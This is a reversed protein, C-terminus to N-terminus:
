AIKIYELNKKFNTFLMKKILSYDPTKLEPDNGIVEFAASKAKRLIEKDEAIDGYKFQPLGSQETGFINGPGRLKLDIEALKFGDNYKEMSKLRIFAKYREKEAPSLYDTEINKLKVKKLYEDKAVLIAYGQRKGRGVRGRLQHLQSLGFRQADNIVIINAAPVDIGVEIVTTSILIDFEKRSFNIMVEEKERWNMKGHILGVKYDAFVTKSLKEFYLTAAKLELKESEEVLPYVIFAQDGEAIKQKVFDFIAPLKSEGRLFTKVPKRGAPMEDITSVDLDGYYTMTLTRPIPTASMVLVDPSFGKNILKGRQEVGFRHQEDIIAFGLNNFEVGEEFLAHTGIVVDAEGSKIQSLIEERQKKGQGGVLNIVNYNLIELLKKIGRYHQDALIETPAMLVCQYGNSVAIVMAVVAVITKGSGVDGQLLRNMPKPSQMDLRIEHLVKLQSKTLEFPLSDLFTKVPEPKIEFSIGTLKEKRLYKRLAVLIEFYFFEEFKFREWAGKLLVPSEPFHVNRLAERIEQLKQKKIVVAPLTEKAKNAYASVANHIIRRLSIAGIKAAKIKGPIRYVPIIKGTNFFDKNEKEDILDFDPHAIQLHGYKTIVPKGSIAYTEGENFLEKFYKIGAFWICEFTQGENLLVVKMIQKRGYRIIEKGYVTGIVTVEGEYGNRLFNLIRNVSLINTRDLYKFPFYFLLDEVTRLGVDAFAKARKPGVSKVFQLSINSLESM